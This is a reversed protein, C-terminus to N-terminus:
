KCITTGISSPLENIAATSSMVGFSISGECICTYRLGAQGNEREISEVDFYGPSKSTCVGSNLIHTARRFKHAYWHVIPRSGNSIQEVPLATDVLFEVALAACYCVVLCWRVACTCDKCQTSNFIAPFILHYHPKRCAIMSRNGVDFPSLVTANQFFLKQLM